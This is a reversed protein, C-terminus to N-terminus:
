CCTAKAANPCAVTTASYTAAKASRVSWRCWRRHPTRRPADPERDRALGRVTGSPDAFEHRRRHRRLPRQGQAQDADRARAARRCRRRPLSGAGDMARVASLRAESRRPRRRAGRSRARSRGPALARRPRRRYRANRDSGFGEALSALQAYVSRWHAADLIGCGLHAHLGTIRAGHERALARFADLQDLALGFKSASAAPAYRTTTAAGSGLDIRLHIAQGRSCSAGTSCRTCRMSRSTCATRSRLRMNRARRSIRRSCSAGPPRTAAADFVREIEALSVCEFAFGDEHLARLISPHPNAKLAYHWRDVASIARLQAHAHACPRRDFLRLAALGRERLALLRERERRWWDERTEAAGSRELERWSPGFVAGDEVRLADARILLAHLRPILDDVLSEDVVFTLNLNNSSQSILHVDLAGFEALVGSLRHVHARMGRGVLTIAACPAIVKVRCIKALDAALASLVDSNVLNETPDLSM